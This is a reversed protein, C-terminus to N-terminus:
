VLKWIREYLGKRLIRSEDIMGEYGIAEGYQELIIKVEEFQKDHQSSYAMILNSKDQITENICHYEKILKFKSLMNHVPKIYAHRNLDAYPYDEYFM